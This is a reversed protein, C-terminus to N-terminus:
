LNIFNYSKVPLKYPLPFIDVRHSQILIAQCLYRVVITTRVSYNSIFKLNYQIKGASDKVILRFTM